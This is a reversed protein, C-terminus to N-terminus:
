RKGHGPKQKRSPCQLNICFVWPHKAAFITKIIPWRCLACMKGTSKLSGKQPLPATAKCMGSSYYTCGVFRKKTVKSRIIQLFGKSCVPCTGLAAQHRKQQPNQSILVADTIKRGIEIEKEKFTIMTTKLRDIAKEIVLASTTKDSEIQELQEEMSRTLDTSVISPVYKRMSQIIEIGIETPMIGDWGNSHTTGTIYNRKFLTSIVESRTAKTGIQEKEMEELISAQNFRPPPHTFKKDMRVAVNRLIDGEHLEQIETGSSPSNIYPKYFYMWGEYLMKKGHAKFIHDDKVLITVTTYESLTPDGFTALFRMIILDFLKQEVVELKDKSNEGTPYIAPHAPDTKSGENPSLHDRALVAAALNSYPYGIKSIGLIIKKYNISAPLKQSATRPYSIFAGIYLKEAISLTYSPSFKFVRYAEKQLDGLNFPTPAKLSVKQKEIKTVKGDLNTCAKVISTAQSLTGIKQEYYHARIINGNKEFEGSITWYPEPIHERIEKERDVVFALTPGQVRGISLNRYRKGDSSVKLSQTLARSLNVGYIFDIMHRSRGAEALGKSPELLNDFSNRIEEDTLTSFKARLSNEYKHNCAYQLINYGIVEGEQDYDCADVFKAANQSLLSISNIITATKKPIPAWKIDFVPYVSRNRNVDVLGYLHGIASCVVFRENRHDTVSFVPTLGRKEKFSSNGLARAIRRAADPKECVVLTYPSQSISTM